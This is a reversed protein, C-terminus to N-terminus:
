IPGKGYKGSKVEYLHTLSAWVARNYSLRKHVILINYPGNSKLTVAPKGVSGLM